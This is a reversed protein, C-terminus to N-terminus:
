HNRLPFCKSFINVRSEALLIVNCHRKIVYNNRMKQEWTFPKLVYNGSKSKVYSGSTIRVYNKYLTWQAKM